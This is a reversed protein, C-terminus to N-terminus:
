QPDHPGTTVSRNYKPQTQSTGYIITRKGAGVARVHRARRIQGTFGVVVIFLPTLLVVNSRRFTQKRCHIREKLVVRIKSSKLGVEVRVRVRVRPTLTGIENEGQAM